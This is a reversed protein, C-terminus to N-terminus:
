VVGDYGVAEGVADVQNGGCRNCCVGSCRLDRSVMTVVVIVDVQNKSRLDQRKIM